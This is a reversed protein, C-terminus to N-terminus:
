PTSSIALFSDQEDLNRAISLLLYSIWYQIYWVWLISSKQEVFHPDWSMLTEYLTYNSTSFEYPPADTHQAYAENGFLECKLDKGFFTVVVINQLMRGDTVANGAYICFLLLTFGLPLSHFPPLLINARKQDFFHNIDQFFVLFVEFHM